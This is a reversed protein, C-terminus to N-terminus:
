QPMICLVHTSVKPPTSGERAPHGDDDYKELDADCAFGHHLLANEGSQWERAALKPMVRTQRTCVYGAPLRTFKRSCKLREHRAPKSCSM